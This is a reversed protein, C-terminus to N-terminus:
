PTAEAISNRGQGEAGMRFRVGQVEVQLNRGINYSVFVKGSRLVARTEGKLLDGEFLTRNDSQQVVKVSVDGLAVLRILNRDAVPPQTTAAPVPATTTAPHSPTTPTSESFLARIVLVLVVLAVVAGGAVIPMKIKQSRDASPAGTVVATPVSRSPPPAGRAAAPEAPAPAPAAPGPRSAEPIDLRGMIERQDQHRRSERPEGFGLASYDTLLKETNLKLYAGYTRLFGRAYIDPLNLEFTNNEFKQLYDSRIKTSESAERISIGKRKRAEELREGITQM